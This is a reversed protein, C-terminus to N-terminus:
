FAARATLTVINQSYDHGTPRTKRQQHRYGLSMSMMRNLRYDAGVFYRNMRSNRVPETEPILSFGRYDLTDHSYGAVLNLRDNARYNVSTNLFKGINYNSAGGTSGNASRGTSINAGLKPGTYNLGLNWTTGSFTDVLGHKPRVWSRGIGGTVNFSPGLRYSGFINAGYSNTGNRRGNPLYQNIYEQEQWQGQVGIQGRNGIPYGIGGTMRQSDLDAFSRDIMGLPDDTSNRVSHRDYGLNVSLGTATQCTGGAHMSWRKQSSPVVEEFVGFQTGRRMFGGQLRGRCRSGLVWDLGGNLGIRNRNLNTNNLYYDRGMVGSFFLTQRGIAHGGSLNISPRISWDDKSKYRSGMAVGSGVRAINDNYETVVQAGVRLGLGSLIDLGSLLPADDGYVRLPDAVTSIPVGEPTTLPRPVIPAPPAVGPPVIQAQASAAGLLAVALALQPAMLRLRAYQLMCPNLTAIQMMRVM